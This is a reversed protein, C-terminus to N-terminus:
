FVYFLHLPIHVKIPCHGCGQPQRHCSFTNNFSWTTRCLYLKNLLPYKVEKHPINTFVPFGTKLNSSFTPPRIGLPYAHSCLNLPSSFMIGLWQHSALATGTWPVPDQSACRSRLYFTAAHSTASGEQQRDQVWSDPSAAGRSDRMRGRQAIYTSHVVSFPASAAQAM